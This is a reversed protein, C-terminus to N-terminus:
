YTFYGVSGIVMSGLIGIPCGLVGSIVMWSVMSMKDNKKVGWSATDGM